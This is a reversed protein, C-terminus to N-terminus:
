RVHQAEKIKAVSTVNVADIPVLRVDNFAPEKVYLTQRPMLRVREGMQDVLPVWSAGGDFTAQVTAPQTQSTNVLTVSNCWGPLTQKIHM